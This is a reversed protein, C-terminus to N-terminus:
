YAVLTRLMILMSVVQSSQLIGHHLWLIFQPQLPFNVGQSRIELVSDLLTGFVLIVITSTLNPHYIRTTVSFLAM